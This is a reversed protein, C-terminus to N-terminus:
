VRATSATPQALGLRRGSITTTRIRLWYPVADLPLWPRLASRDLRDTEAASTVEEIPGIVIVSWAHRGTPDEGDVEFAARQAHTLAHLKAGHASRFAISKSPEDFIFNVPRILPPRDPVNVAVRGLSASAVLRLCEERDLGVLATTEAASM